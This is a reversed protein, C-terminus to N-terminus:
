WLPLSPRNEAAPLGTLYGHAQLYDLQNEEGSAFAQNRNLQRATPGIPVLAKGRAHCSKCQNLNPVAYNTSRTKGDDHIWQVPITAGLLEFYADTQDENWIYSLAKWGKEEHVLLRTELIRRGKSTDRFDHPYYFNKILITGIPFELVE